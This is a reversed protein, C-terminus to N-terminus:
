EESKLVTAYSTTCALVRGNKRVLLKDVVDDPLILPEGEGRSSFSRVNDETLIYVDRGSLCIQIPKAGAEVQVRYDENGYKDFVVLTYADAADNSKLLVAVNDKTLTYLAPAGDSFAIKENATGDFRYFKLGDGCVATIRSNDSFALDYVVTNGLSVDAESESAGVTLTILRTAGGEATHELVSMALRTGGDNFAVDTVYGDTRYTTIKQMDADYINVESKYERSRTVVAFTGSDSMEALYVPYETSEGYIRVFSNYVAFSKEGRGWVVFYKDASSVCPNTYAVNDSLTQKGSASIVTVEDEGVVILGERYLAYSQSSGSTPYSLYNAADSADTAAANIDKVLYYLNSYTILRSGFIITTLLFLFLVIYIIMRAASFRAALESYYPISPSSFDIPEGDISKNKYIKNKVTYFLRQLRQGLKM